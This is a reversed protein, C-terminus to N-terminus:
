RRLVVIRNSNTGGTNNDVGWCHATKTFHQSNVMVCLPTFGASAAAPVVAEELRVQARRVEGVEFAVHGGPRVVRHLEVFVKRMAEQWVTVSRSKTIAVATGDIGCFWCRLWNDAQYQVIDLFPPSTVVLDISADGLEPTHEAGATLLWPDAAALNSRERPTLGRLLDGSKELILQPVHRRPPVQQRRANIRRQAQVSTAQNPPLTYVSFFGRSHGTLRNTAVMQIWRDTADLAHGDLLWARLACLEQLTDAHYFTLLEEPLEVRAAFDIQALRAAIAAPDPPAFRPACLVRSLPNVDCGAAKRGLLAAELATTGRGLFPDYVRAGPQTLRSIFYRPLAPKFCARYSIEHLRAAARQASTWFEGTFVPVPLAAAASRVAGAALEALLDAPPEDRPGFLLGTM